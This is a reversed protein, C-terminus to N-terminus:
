PAIAGRVVRQVWRRTSGELSFVYVGTSLVPTRITTAGAMVSAQHMTRGSADTITFVGPVPLPAISVTTEANALFSPFLPTGAVGLEEVNIPDLFTNVVLSATQGNGNTKVVYVSRAGPGVGEIWGAVVYGGDATAKIDSGWAPSGNGFNNGELWYGDNDLKTYIMDPAGLNLTNYGTIVFGGNQAATIATGGADASNGITRDWLESGNMDTAHVNIISVPGYSYSTGIAVIRQDDTILVDSFTDTSDGPLSRTWLPEGEGNFCALFRDTDGNPQVSSGALVVRGDAHVALAECTAGLAEQTRATWLVEGNLDTRVLYAQGEPSGAGYSIGGLLFGDELALMAHCLDWDSTGYTRQWLVEGNADARVLLLDYGGIVGLASSGAVALGDSLVSVAVGQDVAITGYTKSWIVEGDADLRLVYLDSAGNGFSGATGTVLFGEDPTTAVQTAAETGLGGYSRRWSAQAVLDAPGALLGLSLALFPFAVPLTRM